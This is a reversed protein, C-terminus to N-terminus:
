RSRERRACIRQVMAPKPDDVKLDEYAIVRMSGRVADLLEGPRLLFDPNSPRGYAENGLAFTEYILIGGPAVASVLVPLLPRFLYNTVVIGDFSRGEYPWRGAELDAQLTIIGAVGALRALAPPDRDVAHVRYGLRALLLAHRGSGCALDLVTGGHPIYSVWRCVWASPQPVLHHPTGASDSM